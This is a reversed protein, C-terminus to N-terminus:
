TMPHKVELKNDMKIIALKEAFESVTSEAGYVLKYYVKFGNDEADYLEIYVKRSEL